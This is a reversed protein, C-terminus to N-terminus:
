YCDWNYWVKSFDLQELDTKSIFFNGVGMDGWLINADADSDLQFLLIADDTRPDEQTFHAYGGMKHGIANYAENYEELIDHYNDGFQEFFDDGLQLAFRKDSITAPSESLEFSMSFEGKSLPTREFKPLFDFDELIAEDAEIDAIYIVRFTDQLQFDDFNLGFLEDDGIYFQLLGKTPFPPHNPLESCNIQALFQLPRGEANKPYDITKPLYPLGGIKSGSPSPIDDSLTIKIFPLITKELALQFPKLVKPLKSFDVM